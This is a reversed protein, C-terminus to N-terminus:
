QMLVDKKERASSAIDQYSEGGPRLGVRPLAGAHPGVRRGHVPLAPQSACAQPANMKMRACVGAPPPIRHVFRRSKIILVLALRVRFRFRFSLFHRGLFRLSPQVGVRGASFYGRLPGRLHVAKRVETELAVSVGPGSEM